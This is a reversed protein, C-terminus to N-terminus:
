TPLIHVDYGIVIMLIKKTHVSFPLFFNLLPMMAHLIQFATEDSYLEFM